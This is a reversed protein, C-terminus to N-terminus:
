DRAGYWYKTRIAWESRPWQQHLLQFAERSYNISAPGPPIAPVATYPCEMRTSAVLFHLAKPAEPDAPHAKAWRLLAPALWASRVPLALWRQNQASAQQRQPASLFQPSSAGLTDAPHGDPTACGWFQTEGAATIAGPSLEPLNVLILLAADRRADATTAAQFRAFLQRTTERGSALTATLPLATAWDEGLVARTWIVEALPRKQEAPLRPHQQVQVLLDLPLDRYLRHLFDDDVGAQSGAASSNGPQGEDPIPVARVQAPEALERPAAALFGDLSRASLLQLRRWQNRSVASLPGGAGALAASVQADAVQPADSLDLRALHWHLTQWAPSGAPVARAAVLVAPDLDALRSAGALLPLLWAPDHGTRWRTLASRRAAAALPETAPTASAQMAGIWATMPTPADVLAQASLSDLLLLYDSWTQAVATNVPGTAVAQALEASREAPRLRADVWGILAAAPAYGPALALLEARAQRLLPLADPALPGSAQPPPPMLTAQRLLARAALYAGLAQWPSAADRSIAQFGRRAALYDGAYFLAAASQYAHDQVLWAPAAAPLAPPLMVPVPTGWPSGPPRPPACNAFVADQQALWAATAAANGRQQRQALTKAATRFADAPCNLYSAYQVTDRMVGPKNAPSGALPARAALWVAVGNAEDNWAQDYGGSPQGVRWGQLNLAPLETASLTQGHLARWALVLYARWYDAQVVGLQGAAYAPLEPGAVRNAPVYPNEFYGDGGSAGAPSCALACALALAAPALARRPLSPFNM